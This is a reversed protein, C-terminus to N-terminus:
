PFSNDEKEPEQYCTLTRKWPKNLTTHQKVMTRSVMTGM